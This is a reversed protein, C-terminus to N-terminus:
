AAQAQRGSLADHTGGSTVIDEDIHWDKGNISLLGMIYNYKCRILQVTLGSIKKIEMPMIIFLLEM